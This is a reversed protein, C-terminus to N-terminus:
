LEEINSTTLLKEATSMFYVHYVDRTQQM